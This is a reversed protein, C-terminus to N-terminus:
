SMGDSSKKIPIWWEIRDGDPTGFNNVEIYKIKNGTGGYRIYGDPMEANEIYALCQANGHEGYVNYQMNETKWELTVAFYQCAPVQMLKFGEPAEKIGEVIQGIFYTEHEPNNNHFIQMDNYPKVHYKGIKEYSGTGLFDDWIKKFDPNALSYEKGLFLFEDHQMQFTVIAPKFTESM